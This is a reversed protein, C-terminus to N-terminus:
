YRAYYHINYPQICEEYRTRGLNSQTTTVHNLYIGSIRENTNSQYSIPLQGVGKGFSGVETPLVPNMGSLSDAELQRRRYVIVGVLMVVGVAFVLLVM